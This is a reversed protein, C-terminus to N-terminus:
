KASTFLVADSQDTGRALAIFKGDPSWGFDWVVGSTFHTLQKTPGTRKGSECWCTGAFGSWLNPTGSRIDVTAVSRGDPTWRGGRYYTDGLKTDVGEQAGTVTSVMVGVITGNKDQSGMAVHRGDLSMFAGGGPRDSFRVPAGGSIPTKFIYSSGGPVQGTYIVWQGTGQCAPGTEGLGNTLKTSVGSQLDLKWLHNAGDFNTSYVVARGGDCVTPSEHYHGDFTLQQVNGGDADAVFLDWNESHNGTYVIRNDPTWVLGKMGDFRGSTVQRANDPANAAGVWLSSALNQQVSAMTRSDASVSASVYSSLDNTLRRVGGGPYTVIWLQVPASTKDRAALLLGSGDPLWSFDFIGAWRRGPMPKEKGTAVDIEILGDTQGSPDADTVLTAIRQGDPSWKVNDFAKGQAPYGSVKRATLERAGSGDANAVMVHVEFSSPNMTYTMQRGDPSFSVGSDAGDLLRRPTGGLVPIQYVKGETAMPVFATYDLFDGDPTFAADVIWMPGPPVIQVASAIAIQRVWLSYQGRKTSIYALYRGDPSIRVLAVDGTSTLSSIAPNQFATAALGSRFFGRRYLLGVVTLLLLLLVACSVALKRAPSSGESAASTGPVPTRASEASPVAVASTADTTLAPHRGSSSDRKLRQLDTRLDAAHQYRLKPDKEIAKSIIEEFKPPLGPNLRSAPPPERELIAHFTVGSTNGSFAQRGTAMEYLVVGCSFLDTRADLKEGRVQEPSMYAVTGLAAGPSTLNVDADMTEGDAALAEKAGAPILKALGFDLVKALGRETIFINEPKIDRHVIGQSHAAELADAVAIGTELLADFRLPGSTILHRLTTGRLLEMAIFPMGAHQDIDYITCINPHNLASAAQAERQFRELSAADHAVGQPLFKLAVQRKLKTDDARYVVGM